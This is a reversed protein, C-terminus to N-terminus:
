EFALSRGDARALLARWEPEIAPGSTFNSSLARALDDSYNSFPDRKCFKLHLYGVSEAEIVYRRQPDDDIFPTSIRQTWLRDTTFRSGRTPYIRAEPSDRTMHTAWRPLGPVRLSALMADRDTSVAAILHERDPHVNVGRFFVVQADSERWRRVVEHFHDTAIMDGDWNLVHSRTCRDKCWNFYSASLEPSAQRCPDSAYEWNEWGIKRILYPYDYTRVKQPFDACLQKMIAPSHDTSQNDVLVAEEVEDIISTVSAYLFEAENKVRIMASLAKESRIPRERTL